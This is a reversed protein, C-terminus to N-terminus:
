HDGRDVDPPKARPTPEEPVLPIYHNPENGKAFSVVRIYGREELENIARIASRRPCNVVEGLMSYSPWAYGKKENYYKSLLMSLIRRAVGRLAHDRSAKDLLAMRLRFSVLTYKPDTQSYRAEDRRDM